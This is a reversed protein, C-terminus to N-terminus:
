FIATKKMMKFEREGIMGRTKDNLPCHLSIIDAETILEDLERWEFPFELDGCNTKRYALVKMGLAHCMRAFERGIGGFGIIGVTKGRLRSYVEAGRKEMWSGDHIVQMMEPIKRSISLLLALAHEAVEYVCYGPVFTVAMNHETAAAVDIKDYGTGMRLIAKCKTLKALTDAKLYGPIVAIADPDSAIVKEPDYGLIEEIEDIGARLFRQREYETMPYSDCDMRLLKM